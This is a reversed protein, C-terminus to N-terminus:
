KKKYIFRGVCFGDNPQPFPVLCDDVRLRKELVMQRYAMTAQAHSGHACVEAEAGRGHVCDLTTIDNMLLLTDAHSMRKINELDHLRAGRTKAGNLLVLDCLVSPHEQQYQPITLAPNGWVITVANSGLWQKFEDSAAETLSKEKRQSRFAAFFSSSDSGHRDFALFKADPLLTHLVVATDFAGVGIECIMRIKRDNKRVFQEVQKHIYGVKKWQYLKVSTLGGEGHTYSDGMKGLLQHWLQVTRQLVGFSVM